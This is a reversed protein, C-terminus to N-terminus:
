GDKASDVEDIEDFGDFVEPLAKLGQVLGFLTVGHMGRLRMASLDDAITAWVESLGSAFVILGMALTLYPNHALRGLSRLLSKM